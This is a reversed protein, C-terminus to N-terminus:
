PREPNSDEAPDERDPDLDTDKMFVMSFWFTFGCAAIWPLVVGFFVWRPMGFVTEVPKDPDFRGGLGCVLGTWTLFVLWAIVIVVTERSAQRFSEGLRRNRDERRM